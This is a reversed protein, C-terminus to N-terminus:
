ALSAAFILLDDRQTETMGLIQMVALTTLGERVLNAAKDWEIRALRDKPAPLQTFAHEIADLLSDFGSWPTLLAAKQVKHMPVQEPATAAPLDAPDIERLVPEADPASCDFVLDYAPVTM